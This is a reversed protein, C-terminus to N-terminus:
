GSARAQSLLRLVLRARPGRLYKLHRETFFLRTKTVTTALRRSSAAWTGVLIRWASRPVTGRHGCQHRLRDPGVTVAPSESLIEPTGTAQLPFSNCDAASRFFHFHTVGHVSSLSCYRQARSAELLRSVRLVAQFVAFCSGQTKAITETLFPLLVM